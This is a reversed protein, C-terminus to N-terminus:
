ASLFVTCSRQQREKAIVLFAKFQAACVIDSPSLHPLEALSTPRRPVIYPMFSRSHLSRAHVCTAAGAVLVGALAILRRGAPTVQVDQEPNRVVLAGNSPGRKAAAEARKRGFLRGMVGRPAPERKGGTFASTIESAEDAELDDRSRKKGTTTSLGADLHSDVSPLTGESKLTEVLAKADALRAEITADSPTVGAEDAAGDVTVQTTETM